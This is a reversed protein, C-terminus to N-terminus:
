LDPRGTLGRCSRYPPAEAGSVPVSSQLGFVLATDRSCAVPELSRARISQLGQLGCDTTRLGSQLSFISSQLSFVSSWLGFVVSWLGHGLERAGSQMRGTAVDEGKSGGRHGGREDAGPARASLLGCPLLDRDAGLEPAHALLEGGVNGAGQGRELLHPVLGDLELVRELFGALLPLGVQAAGAQLRTAEVVPEVLQLAVVKLRADLEVLRDAIAVQDDPRQRFLNVRGGSRSFFVASAMLWIAPFSAGCLSRTPYWLWM